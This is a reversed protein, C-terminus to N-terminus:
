PCDSPSAASVTSLLFSSRLSQRLLELFAILRRALRIDVEACTNPHDIRPYRLASFQRFLLGERSRAAPSRVGGALSTPSRQHRRGAMSAIVITSERRWSRWAWGPPASRRKRVGLGSLRRDTLHCGSPRRQKSRSRSRVTNGVLLRRSQQFM